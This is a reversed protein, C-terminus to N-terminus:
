GPPVTVKVVAGVTRWYLSGNAYAPSGLTEEALDNEAILAGKDGSVDVVQVLGEVSVLYLYHGVLLPTAWMRSGKLRLQWLTSGDVASGCNLVNSGRVVYVRGDAVVPSGSSPGLRQEQWVTTPQSGGPAFELCALQGATPVLVRSGDACPSPILSGATRYSTEIRGSVPEVIQLQDSSQVIVYEIGGLGLSAPSTWATAQALPHKWRDGGTAADIGLVISDGQCAIQVVITGEVVIPSSALGRDDFASPYELGLARMWCINGDLDLCILDNSAFLCYIFQGDSAPTPAAISSLPHTATRGTAQFNRKWLVRGTADDICWIHLRDQEIGSSSTAIVRGDVVIVGNVGRGPIEVRWATNEDATWEIPVPGESVANRGDLGRFQRWDEAVSAMVACLWICTAIVIRNM